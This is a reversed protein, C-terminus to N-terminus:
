LCKLNMEQSIKINQALKPTWFQGKAGQQSVMNSNEHMLLEFIDQNSMSVQNYITEM